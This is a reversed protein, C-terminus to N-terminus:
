TIKKSVEPMPPRCLMVSVRFMGDDYRISVEGGYKEAVREVSVLGIGHEGTKSSQIRGQRDVTIKGTYPNEVSIFLVGKSLRITLEVKREEEPLLRVAELANDLLNGLIVCLDTGDVPLEAPTEIRCEMAIGDALAASYKYNVLADLALNGSHAAEQRGLSNERIMKGIEDAAAEPKGEELLANVAVLRANLDHRLVRTQQYANEREAAQRMYLRIEQEYTKNQREVFTQVSIKEYVDFIVYNILIMLISVISFIAYMENQFTLRYTGYIIFVSSIPVLFLKAWHKFPLFARSDPERWRKLAQVVIFMAIKSIISGTAFFHEGDTGLFLLINVTIVEVAMWLASFVVSHFLATRFDGSCFCVHILAILLINILTIPLPYEANSVMVLYQFFIYACWAAYGFAKHTSTKKQFPMLYICTIQVALLVMLIDLLRYHNLM